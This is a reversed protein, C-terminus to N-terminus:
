LRGERDTAQAEPFEGPVERGLTRETGKGEVPTGGERSSLEGEAFIVEAGAELREFQGDRAAWSVALLASGSLLVLGLILLIVGAEM